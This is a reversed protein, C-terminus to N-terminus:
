LGFKEMRRYFASKSYGLSLAADRANGKYKRLVIEILKKEAQEMTLDAWDEDSSKSSSSRQAPLMLDDDDIVDSRALLVAREIVHNLERINGPWAYDLLSQQAQVSFSLARQGAYKKLFMLALPIIDEQRETLSPLKIEISNLRFLLDRRFLGQEEMAVLDGNTASIVRVDAQQQQSSGLKEFEGSELVRLLKAQQSMPINAIEDMFLTGGDALEIRGLRNQKADTYAGKVHGFLESEFVQENIAGMNVSVFNAGARNSNHHILQALQSKGTGNDGTILINIDTAAIREVLDMVQKMASSQCIWHEPWQQQRSLQQENELLHTTKQSQSLKIQNNITILLRNNDCPKEIFDNAGRQMARVAIEVTAWGTMVVIPVYEDQQRIADILALGEEGSTTDFHYNLDILLLSYANNKLANIAAEPSQVTDCIFGESKLHLKIASLIAIDDDAVLISHKKM